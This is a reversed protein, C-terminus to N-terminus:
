THTSGDEGAELYVGRFAIGAELPGAHYFQHSVHCTETAGHCKVTVDYGDHDSRKVWTVMDVDRKCLWCMPVPRKPLLNASM